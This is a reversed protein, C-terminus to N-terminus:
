EYKGELAKKKALYMKKFGLGIEPKSKGKKRKTSSKSWFKKINNTKEEGSTKTVIESKIFERFKETNKNKKM